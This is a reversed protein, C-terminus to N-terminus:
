QYFKRALLRADSPPFGNCANIIDNASVLAVRKRLSLLKAISQPCATVLQEALRLADCYKQDNPMPYYNRHRAALLAALGEDLYTADGLTAPSLIHFSEHALQGERDVDNMNPPIRITVHNKTGDWDAHRAKPVEQVDFTVCVPALQYLKQAYNLSEGVLMDNKAMRNQRPNCFVRYLGYVSLGVLAGVIAGARGAAM